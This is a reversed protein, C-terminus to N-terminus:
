FIRKFAFASLNLGSNFVVAAVGFYPNIAWCALNGIGMLVNIREHVKYGCFGNLGALYAIGQVSSATLVGTSFFSVVAIHMLPNTTAALVFISTLAFFLVEKNSKLFDSIKDVISTKSIQQNQVEKGKPFSHDTPFNFSHWSSM